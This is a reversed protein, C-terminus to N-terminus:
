VVNGYLVERFQLAHLIQKARTTSLAGRKEGDSGRCKETAAGMM